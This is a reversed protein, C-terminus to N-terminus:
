ANGDMVLFEMCCPHLVSPHLTDEIPVIFKCIPSMEVMSNSGPFIGRMALKRILGLVAASPHIRGHEWRSVTAADAGFREAFAVQTEGAMMRARRVLYPIPDTMAYVKVCIHMM